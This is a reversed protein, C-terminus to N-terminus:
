LYLMDNNEFANVLADNQKEVEVFHRLAQDYEEGFYEQMLQRWRNTKETDTTRGLKQTIRKFGKEKKTSEVYFDSFVFMEEKGEADITKISCSDKSKQLDMIQSNREEKNLFAKMMEDPIKNIFM